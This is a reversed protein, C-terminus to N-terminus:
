ATRFASGTPVFEIPLGPLRARLWPVIWRMGPEESAAHGLVVLAPRGLLAQGDRAFESTEWEHIEGTILVDVAPDALAGIQWEHGPFGPLLAATQCPMEPDGVLRLGPANLRERLHRALQGLPLAAPLRCQFPRDPVAYAEWGLETQLGALTPDPTLSHLYDHFRWIALGHREIQARKAQYVPNEALWDVTDRHNYFTPEHTIILNAGLAAAREIVASTALFATVLGTVAQGPDGAKLTDVTDPFPAGPVAAIITDIVTQVTFSM